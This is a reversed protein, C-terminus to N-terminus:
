YTPKELRSAAELETRHHFLGPTNNVSVVGVLRGRRTRTAVFCHDRMDGDVITTADGAGPLGLGRIQVGFQDTWFSPMASTPRDHKGLLTGAAIRAHSPATSWHEVRCAVGDLLPQPVRAVDGVAVIGPVPTGAQDLATLSTDTAVGDAVDLGSHRLWDTNPVAGLAAVVVDATVDTLGGRTHDQLTVHAASKGRRGHVISAVTTTTRVEIGSSQHLEACYASLEPGLAGHMPGKTAEVLSVRHGLSAATSAVECGLFGAGVVLISREDLDLEAHLRDADDFTRIHHVPWAGAQEQLRRARAGTAIVLGDFPLRAGTQLEVTRGSLDLSTAATDLIWDAELEVTSPLSLKSLDPKDALATKTLPPRNYPPHPEDGVITLAGDFGSHRLAEASRLGALSAGIVVVRRIPSALEDDPHM